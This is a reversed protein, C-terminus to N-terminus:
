IHILSLSDVAGGRDVDTDFIVGMDAKADLTAKCVSQMAVENEPNPIHNPFYGDPELFQSGATDAGLPSLVDRAYFGGAGNGADVIIKFGKLPHDYDAANVGKKIIDRLHASYQAQRKYM